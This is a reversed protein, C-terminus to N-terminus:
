VHYGMKTLSKFVNDTNPQKAFLKVFAVKAQEVLMGLGNCGRSLPNVQEMHTLFLGKQASYTLDYCFTNDSIQTIQSFLKNETSNPSSNLILDYHKKHDFSGTAFKSTLYNIRDQNRALIDISAPNNPIIDMLISDLVFGSGIILINKYALELKKNSLIDTVLGIGDTTDAIIESNDLSLFNSAKAFGSRITHKKSFLFASQKFPSTVNVATGGNLFFDTVKTAFDDEDIALIREYNLSINCEKAFLDFVVPSLSHEIPNGFVALQYM